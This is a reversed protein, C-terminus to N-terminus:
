VAPELENNTAANAVAMRKTPSATLMMANEAKIVSRSLRAASYCRQPRSQPPGM